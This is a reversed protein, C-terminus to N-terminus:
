RGDSGCEEISRVVLRQREEILRLVDLALRYAVSDGSKARECAARARHEMRALDDD